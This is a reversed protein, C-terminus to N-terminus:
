FGSCSRGNCGSYLMSYALLALVVLKKIALEKLSITQSDYSTAIDRNLRYTDLWIQDNATPQFHQRHNLRTTSHVFRLGFPATQVRVALLQLM